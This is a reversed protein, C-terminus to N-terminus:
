VNEKYGRKIAEEKSINENKDTDYYYEFDDDSLITVGLGYSPQTSLKIVTGDHSAFVPTLELCPIDIGNHGKLGLTAYIPNLNLGFGQGIVSFGNPTDKKYTNKYTPSYNWGRAPFIPKTLKIMNNVKIIFKTTKVLVVGTVLDPVDIQREEVHM